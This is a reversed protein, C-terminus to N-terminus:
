FSTTAIYGVFDLFNDEEVVLGIDEASGIRVLTGKMRIKGAAVSDVTGEAFDLFSGEVLHKYYDLAKYHEPVTGAVAPDIEAL